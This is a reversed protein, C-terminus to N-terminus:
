IKRWYDAVSKESLACDNHQFVELENLLEKKQAIHLDENIHFEIEDIDLSKLCINCSVKEM